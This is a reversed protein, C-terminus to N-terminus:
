NLKENQNVERITKRMEKMLRLTLRNDRDVASLYNYEILCQRCLLQLCDDGISPRGCECRFWEFCNVKTYRRSESEAKTAAESWNFCQECVQNFFYEVKTKTEYSYSFVFLGDDSSIIEKECFFCESFKAYKFYRHKKKLKV